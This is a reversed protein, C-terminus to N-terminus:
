SPEFTDDRYYLSDTTKLFKRISEKSIDVNM